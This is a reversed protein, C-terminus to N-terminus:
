GIKLSLTAPLSVANTNMKDTDIAAIDKEIKTQEEDRNNGCHSREAQLSLLTAVLSLISM